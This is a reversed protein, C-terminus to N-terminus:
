KWPTKTKLVEEVNSKDCLEFGTDVNTETLKEGQIAKYLLRIGQDGMATYNSGILQDVYDLGVFKLMPHFTDISVVKGGKERFQKLGSLAEQDAFFPWGGDFWWGALDPNAATFQNVIEVSKAVDDEGTQVPLIELKSGKAAEKFGQIREELNPAGLVGTLIAVKGGNPLLNIMYEAAKKGANFNNTGIYFLRKSDPSDSDFTAIKIGKDMAKNIVDKLANADNCSIMIGNVGKEILGEIVTVQEAAVSNTSGVWEFKIGLEACTKEAAVKTDIFIPNDLAKPCVAITIDKAAVATSTTASTSPEASKAPETSKGPESMSCGILLGAALMLAMVVLLVKKM